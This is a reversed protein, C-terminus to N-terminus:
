IQSLNENEAQEKYYWWEALIKEEIDQVVKAIEEREM